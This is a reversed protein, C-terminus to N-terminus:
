PVHPSQQRVLNMCTGIPLNLVVFNGWKDPLSGWAELVRYNFFCVEFLLDQYRLMSTQPIEKTFPDQFILVQTGHILLRAECIPARWDKRIRSSLEALGIEDPLQSMSRPCHNPNLRRLHYRCPHKLHLSYLYYELAMFPSQM